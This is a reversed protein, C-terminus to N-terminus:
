RVGAAALYSLDVFREPPPLAGKIQGVEGMFQIVQALGRMNIEAQKPFVGRDPEYYLTLTDRAIAESAGTSETIIKVVAARNAPDRIFRFSQAFARVFRVVADKHEAAWARRVASVTMVSDPVADTSLGLRHYGQAILQFDEPQGLPTAACEGGKLCAARAPTGVLEKVRYDADELGNMAILKRTSISITDVALSLGVTRGELDAFSKVEPRAILSYISNGVEGAVAAADSGALVATILYPTATRTIDVSGKDLAQIMFDTGGDIPVPVITLGEKAFYGQRQAVQYQLSSVSRISSPIQGYRLTTQAQTGSAAALLVLTLALVRM